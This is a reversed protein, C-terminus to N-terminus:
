NRGRGTKKRDLEKQKMLEKIRKEEIGKRKKEDEKRKRELDQLQKRIEDVLSIQESCKDETKSESINLLKEEGSSFQLMNDFDLFISGDADKIEEEELEQVYEKHPEDHEKDDVNIDGETSDSEVESAQAIQSAEIIDRRERRIAEQEEKNKENEEEEEEESYENQM